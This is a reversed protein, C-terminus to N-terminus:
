IWVSLTEHSSKNISIAYKSYSMGCKNVALRSESSNVSHCCEAIKSQIGTTALEFRLRSLLLKSHPHNRNKETATALPLIIGSILGCGSGEVVKEIRHESKTM